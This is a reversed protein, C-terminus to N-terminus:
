LLTVMRHASDYAERWSGFPGHRYSNTQDTSWYSWYWLDSFRGRFVTARVEPKHEMDHGVLPLMHLDSM